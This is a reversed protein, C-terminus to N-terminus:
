EGTEGEITTSEETVYTKLKKTISEIKTKLDARSGFDLINVNEREFRDIYRSFNVKIKLLVPDLLEAGKLQMLESITYHKYPELHGLIRM